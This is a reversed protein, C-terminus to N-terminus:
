FTNCILEGAFQSSGNPTVGLVVISGRAPALSLGNAALDLTLAGNIQGNSPLINSSLVTALEQGSYQFHSRQDNADDIVVDVQIMTVQQGSVETLTFDASCVGPSPNSIQNTQILNYSTIVGNQSCASYLVFFM